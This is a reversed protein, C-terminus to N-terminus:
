QLVPDTFLDRAREGELKVKRTKITGRKEAMVVSSRHVLGSEVKRTKITGREESARENCCQTQSCAQSESGGVKLMEPRLQM